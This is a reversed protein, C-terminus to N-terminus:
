LSLPPATGGQITALARQMPGSSLISKLKRAYHPDTAYGAKQLGEFYSAPDGAQAVAQRYRPNGTVFDAYDQFSEQFSGYARFEAQKRVALGDEFEVTPVRVREGDWGSHAKIGFLNHSTTGKAGMIHSGWGTELAAQALLAAPQLGVRAAAERAWPWLDRVFEEPSDWGNSAEPTGNPGASKAPNNVIPPPMAATTTTTISTSLSARVSERPPVTVAPTARYDALTKASQARIADDGSQTDATQAKKAALPEMQRRIAQALGLGNPRNAFSQTIQQDHLDQYLKTQESDFAGEGLSAQRMTRLMTQTILAEFQRAVADLADGKQQRVGAKLSALGGSVLSSTAM